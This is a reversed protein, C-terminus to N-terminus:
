SAIDRCPGGPRGLRDGLDNDDAVDAHGAGVAAAAAGGELQRRDKPTKPFTQKKGGGKEVDFM